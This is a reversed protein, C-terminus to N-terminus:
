RMFPLLHHLWLNQGRRDPEEKPIEGSEGSRTNIIAQLNEHGNSQMCLL